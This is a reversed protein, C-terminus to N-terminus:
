DTVHAKIIRMTYEPRGGDQAPQEEIILVGHVTESIGYGFDVIDDGPKPEYSLFTLCTCCSRHRM